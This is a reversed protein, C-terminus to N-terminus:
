GHVRERHPRMAALWLETAPIGLRRSAVASLEVAEEASDAIRLMEIVGDYKDRWSFRELVDRMQAMRRDRYGGAWEARGRGSRDRWVTM